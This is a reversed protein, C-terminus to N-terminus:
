VTASGSLPIYEHIRILQRKQIPYLLYNHKYKNNKLTDNYDGIKIAQALMHGHLSLFNVNLNLIILLLFSYLVTSSIAIARKRSNLETRKFVIM